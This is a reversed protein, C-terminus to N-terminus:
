VIERDLLPLVQHRELIPRFVEAGLDERDLLDDVRGLGPDRPREIQPAVEAAPRGDHIELGGRADVSPV